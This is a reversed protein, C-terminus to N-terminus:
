KVKSPEVFGQRRYIFKTFNEAGRFNRSKLVISIHKNNDNDNDNHMVIIYILNLDGRSLASKHPVHKPGNYRVALSV